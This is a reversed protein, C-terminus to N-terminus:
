DKIDKTKELLDKVRMIHPDNVQKVVGTVLIDRATVPRIHGLGSRRSKGM